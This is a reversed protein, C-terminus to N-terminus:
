PLCFKYYFSMSRELIAHQFFSPVIKRHTHRPGEWNQINTTVSPRLTDQSSPSVKFIAYMPWSVPLGKCSWSRGYRVFDMAISQFFYGDLEM